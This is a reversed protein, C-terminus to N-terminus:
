KNETYDFAIEGVYASNGSATYGTVEITLIEGATATHGSIDLVVDSWTNASLGTSTAITAGTSDVVVVDIASDTAAGDTKYSLTITALDKIDAPTKVQFDLNIDQLATQSTTVTHFNHGFGTNDTSRFVNVTNNSGDEKITVGGMPVLQTEPKPAALATELADIDNENTTIRTGQATQETQLNTIDTDNSAIASANNSINTNQTTQETQLDAIDDENATVRGELATNANALAAIDDANTKIQSDLKLLGATLDSGFVLYNAGTFDTNGVQTQLGSIDTDNSIINNENTTIRTGQATQETQLNSIDTDNSSINTANTSINTNQTTQETQLNSIDTDNSAIDNENTTIRTGQSTQETQLASIDTDNNSINTANTAINGTNGAINTENTSVRAALATNALGLESVDVGDVTAGAVMEVNGTLSINGEVNLSNSLNFRLNTSDWSFTESLTNGFQLFIDGGTDDADLILHNGNELEKENSWIQINAASASSALVPVILASAALSQSLTKIRM